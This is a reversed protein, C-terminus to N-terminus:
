LEILGGLGLRIKRKKPKEQTFPLELQEPFRRGNLAAHLDTRIECQVQGVYNNAKTLRTACASVVHEIPNKEAESFLKEALNRLERMAGTPLEWLRNIVQGINDVDLCDRGQAKQEAYDAKISKNAASLADGFEREEKGSLYVEQRRILPESSYKHPVYNKSNDRTKNALASLKTPFSFSIGELLKEALSKTGGFLDFNSKVLIAGFNVNGKSNNKNQKTYNYNGVSLIKM